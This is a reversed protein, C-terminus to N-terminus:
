AAYDIVTIGAGGAGTIIDQTLTLNPNPKPNPKRHTLTLTCTFYFVVGQILHYSLNLSEGYIM